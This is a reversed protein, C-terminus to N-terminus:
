YNNLREMAMISHQLTKLYEFNLNSTFSSLKRTLQRVWYSFVRQFM